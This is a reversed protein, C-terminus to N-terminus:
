HGSNGGPASLPRSHTDIPTIASAPSKEGGKGRILLTQKRGMELSLPMRLRFNTLM